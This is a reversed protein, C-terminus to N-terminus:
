TQLLFGLPKHRCIHCIKDNQLNQPMRARKLWSDRVHNWINGRLIVRLDIVNQGSDKEWRMGSLKMRQTFITKCAAETVGSGIPLGNRKYRAYAMHERYKWLYGL